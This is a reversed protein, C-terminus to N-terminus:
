GPPQTRRPKPDDTTQRTYMGPPLGGRKRRGAAELEADREREAALIQRLVEGRSRRQDRKMREQVDRARTVFAAFLATVTAPELARLGYRSPQRVDIRVVEYDGSLSGGPARVSVVDGVALRQTTEVCMGTASADKVLVRLQRESGRVTAETELDIRARFAGREDTAGPEGLLLLTARDKMGIVPDVKSCRFVGLRPGGRALYRIALVEGGAVLDRPTEVVVEAGPQPAGLLAVNAEAQITPVGTYSVPQAHGPLAFGGVEATAAAAASAHRSGTM